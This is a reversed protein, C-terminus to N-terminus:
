VEKYGANCRIKMSHKARRINTLMREDCFLDITSLSDLGISGEPLVKGKEEDFSTTNPDGSTGEQLMVGEIKDSNNSETRREAGKLLM